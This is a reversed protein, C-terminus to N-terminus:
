INIGFAPALIDDAMLGFGYILMNYDKLMM